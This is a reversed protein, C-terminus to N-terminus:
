KVNKRLDKALILKPQGPQRHKPNLIYIGALIGYPTAKGCFRNALYPYGLKLFFIGIYEFFYFKAAYIRNQSLVQREKSKGM